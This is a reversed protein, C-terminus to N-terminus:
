FYIWKIEGCDYIKDIKKINLNNLDKKNLYINIYDTYYFIPKIMSDFKFGLNRYFNSEMWRNDSFSIIKKPKYKKIFYDFLKKSGENIKIGFKVAYRSLKWEIIKGIKKKKFTMVSLLENNYYLGLQIDSNDNGKLHYNELFNNAIKNNILNIKLYKINKIENSEPILINRIINKIIEKKNIWEIDWIQLLRIGKEQCRKFKNLHYSRSKGGQKHSHFYIGNFEIALKKSPIYIDIENPFILKRYNRYIRIKPLIEKIYEIIEREGHSQRIKFYSKKM